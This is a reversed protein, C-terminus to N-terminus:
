AEDLEWVRVDAIMLIQRKAEKVNEPNGTIVINRTNPHDPDAEKAVQVNTGTRRQLDLITAGRTGVVLGVKEYPIAITEFGDRSTQMSRIIDPSGTKVMTQIIEIAKKVMEEDGTITIDRMISAPNADNERQM